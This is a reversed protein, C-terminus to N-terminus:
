VDSDKICEWRLLCSPWLPWMSHWRYASARSDIFSANADPTADRTIYHSTDRRGSSRSLSYIEMSVSSSSVHASSRLSNEWRSSKKDQADQTVRSPVGRLIFNTRWKPCLTKNLKTSKALTRIAEKLRKVTVSTSKTYKHSRRRCKQSREFVRVIHTSFLCLIKCRLHFSGTISM